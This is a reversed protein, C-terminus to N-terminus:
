ESTSCPTEKLQHEIVYLMVKAKKQELKESALLDTLRQKFDSLELDQMEDIRAIALQYNDINIQYGMVEDIRQQLAQALIERKNM